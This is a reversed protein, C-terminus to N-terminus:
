PQSFSGTVQQPQTLEESRYLDLTELTARDSVIFLDATETAQHEVPVWSPVVFVDGKAWAFQVGGIVSAGRGRFVVFIQGGTQRRPVTAGEPYLRSMQCTMRAIAPGGNTPNLYEVSSISGGRAGHISELMRDVEAYPYRMLSSSGATVTQTAVDRLGSAGFRKESVGHGIIPQMGAPHEEVFFTDLAAILPADIGDFWLAPQDGYSTHDHWSWAPTLVLDGPAMECADGDVTTFVSGGSMMFRIAAPTHRHAPATEGPNLYQYAGFITPTTGAPLGPNCFQLARRAGDSGSGSGLRLTDAARQILPEVNKWSWLYARTKPVPQPSLHRSWLGCMNQAALAQNLDGLQSDVAAPPGGSTLENHLKGELALGISM